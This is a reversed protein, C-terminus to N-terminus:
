KEEKFATSKRSLNSRYSWWSLGVAFSAITDGQEKDTSLFGQSTTKILRTMHMAIPQKQGTSYNLPSNPTPPPSREKIQKKVWIDNSQLHHGVKNGHLGMWVEIWNSICFAASSTGLKLNWSATLDQSRKTRQQPRGIYDSQINNYHHTQM